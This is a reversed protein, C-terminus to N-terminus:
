SVRASIIPVVRDRTLWKMFLNLFSPKMSYLPCRSTCLESKLTTRWSSGRETRMSSPSPSSIVPHTRGTALARRGHQTRRTPPPQGAKIGACDAPVSAGLWSARLHEVHRVTLILQGDNVLLEPAWSAFLAPAETAPSGRAALVM